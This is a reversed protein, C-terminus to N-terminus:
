VSNHNYNAFRNEILKLIVKWAIEAHVCFVIIIFINYICLTKRRLLIIVPCIKSQKRVPVIFDGLIRSNYLRYMFLLNRNANWKLPYRFTVIVSILSFITRNITKNYINLSNGYFTTRVESRNLKRDLRYSSFYELYASSM